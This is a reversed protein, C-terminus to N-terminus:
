VRPISQTHDKYMYGYTFEYGYIQSPNFRNLVTFCPAATVAAIAAYAQELAETDTQGCRTCFIVADCLISLYVADTAVLVPPADVLTIDFHAKIQDMLNKVSESRFLDGPHLKPGAATMAYLGPIGTFLNEDSPLNGSAADADIGNGPRLDLMRHIAPRFLDADIICTRLGAKALTIGMNCVTTTKGAGEEPSTFLVAGPVRGHRFAASLSLQLRRYSEAEPSSPNFLSVLTSSVKRGSFSVSASGNADRKIAQSLDPMAALMVHGRLSIDEPTYIRTDLRRRIVAAGMGLLIGLVLGLPLNRSKLPRVPKEPIIANRIIQAGGVESEEAIRVEQLKEVLLTFLEETSKRSRELRALEMMRTPITKLKKEYEGIRMELAAIKAGAGSIAIREDVVKRNLQTIYSLGDTSGSPDVGGAAMLEDVYQRSMEQVKARLSTIRNRITEIEANGTAARLSPNKIFIRELIIEQEAIKKQTQAIEDEIGSAVRSILAPQLSAMQQELSALSAEHMGRAIKTEDLVAELLAIQSVTNQSEQDLAVAGETGKYIKIRNELEALESRRGDIQSELFLRSGSIRHRSTERSLAVYESAYLDAIMAAEFPRRSTADIEIIDVDKDAMSVTVYEQQLRVAIEDLSLQRGRKNLITLPVNKAIATDVLRKATRRALVLSQRLIVTQNSLNRSGYAAGEIKGYDLASVSGANGDQSREEPHRSNILLLSYAKYEPSVTFTYVAVAAFVFVAVSLMLWGGRRFTEIHRQLSKKANIVPPEPFLSTDRSFSQQGSHQNSNNM